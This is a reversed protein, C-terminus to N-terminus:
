FATIMQLLYKKILSFDIANISGDKDVDAAKKAKESSLEDIRLLHKKLLSLDIADVVNDENIDGLTVVPPNITNKQWVKVWDCEFDSSWDTSSDPDSEWGGIALNIIIYMNKAQSIWQTDKFTTGVQKGDLYWKIYETDWEVAYIHFDQSLDAVTQKNYHSWKNDMSYGYHYNTHLERPEHCLVEFIDIEPPRGSDSNLTWFSPWFGKTGPLKFRGVIYGTTLNFKNKTNVAGSTYDLSYTGDPTTTTTPADPHRKNEGKIRLLGDSVSVNEPACYASNSHTNGWPYNYNWKSTDLSTGEFEDNFVLSWGDNVNPPTTISDPDLITGKATDIEISDYYPLTLSTDSEFVLPLWVYQSDNVKGSWAGAWRDGTYLYSTANTGQVPIIFAPQSRYTTSDGLNYLPSWGSELSTSYAYKGQNPNWGTCGSTILYYYNNRKILCPAERQKGIFLKTVLSSVGKYDTTLKYLNLDMNENSASIFYGTGDTDVFVNCDRSMYGSLGHDTVGSAALPRFSGHYTYKGDPTDCYAVAARAQGYNVGNEWHMWMVFQKTSANYMVKPREINCKNLEAASNPALVEGRYEWNKLDTSRYCRVGLFYNSSDRYEGYWYYHSGYKILGGGHAHIINGSTDKFQTGNTITVPTSAAMVQDSTFGTTSLIQISIILIILSYVSKKNM